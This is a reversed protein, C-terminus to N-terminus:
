LWKVSFQIKKNLIDKWNGTEKTYIKLICAWSLWSTQNQLFYIGIRKWNYEIVESKPLTQRFSVISLPYLDYEHADLDLRGEQM